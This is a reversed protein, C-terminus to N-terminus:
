FFGMKGIEWQAPIATEARLPSAEASDAHAEASDARAEAANARESDNLRRAYSSGSSKSSRTCASSSVSRVTCFVAGTRSPARANAMRESYNIAQGELNELLLWVWQCPTTQAAQHLPSHFFMNFTTSALSRQLNLMTFLKREELSVLKYCNIKLIRSRLL